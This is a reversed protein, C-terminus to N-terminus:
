RCGCRSRDVGAVARRVDGQGHADGFRREGADGVGRAHATATLRGGVVAVVAVAVRGGDDAGFRVISLLWVPLKVMPTLPPYVKATEFLPPAAVVPVTVTVSARGGLRPKTEAAPVAQVQPKAVPVTVQVRVVAMAAPPAAGLMVRVTETVAAALGLTVLLALTLPPPSGAALLPLLLSLSRVVTVAPTSRVM